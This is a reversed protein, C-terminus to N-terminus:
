CSPDPEGASAPISGLFAAPFLRLRPNGRVRPSLGSGASGVSAPLVTGGCERPYVRDTGDAFAAAWPEGASAPISGPRGSGPTARRPNGRVRPSLGRHDGAESFEILTGGCERPYVGTTARRNCAWGPEGASAPISGDATPPASDFYRNGRVRPSLGRRPSRSALRVTTGGCERPYVGLHQWEDGYGSPEGASAPISGSRSSRRLTRRRNGRVRPSLGSHRDIDGIPLSTGGCERPYVGNRCGTSSDKPPEGASAPISGPEPPLALGHLRNGRVRPSLGQRAVRDGIGVHTGGCERPYVGRRRDACPSSAPEGASAPISGQRENPRVGRRLNGRM